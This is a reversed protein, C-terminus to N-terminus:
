ANEEEGDRERERVRAARRRGRPRNCGRSRTRARDRELTVNEGVREEAFAPREAVEIAVSVLVDHRTRVPIASRIEGLLVLDELGLREIRLRVRRVEKRERGVEVAISPEVQEDDTKGSLVRRPVLVRAARIPM